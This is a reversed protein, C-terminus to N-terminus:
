SGLYTKFLKTLTTDGELKEGPKLYTFNPDTGLPLVNTCAFMDREEYKVYGNAGQIEIRYDCDAKWSSPVRDIGIKHDSINTLVVHISVEDGVKITEHPTSITVTYQQAGDGAAIVASPTAAFAVIISLILIRCSSQYTQL